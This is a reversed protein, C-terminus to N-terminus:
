HLTTLLKQVQFLGGIRTRIAHFKWGCNQSYCYLTLRGREVKVRRMRFGEKITYDKLACTIKAMNRLYMGVRLQGPGDEVKYLNNRFDERM